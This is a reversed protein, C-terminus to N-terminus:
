ATGAPLVEAVTEARARVLQGALLQPLQKWEFFSSHLIDVDAIQIVVDVFIFQPASELCIPLDIIHGDHAVTVRALRPTESKDFHCIVFLRFFGDGAGISRLQAPAVDIHILRTRFGLAASKAASGTTATPTIASAASAAIAIAATSTTAVTTTTSASAAAAEAASLYSSIQTSM